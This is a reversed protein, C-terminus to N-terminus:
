TDAAAYRLDKAARRVWGKGAAPWNALRTWFELREAVFLMIFDTVSMAKLAAITIPGVHGDDAVGVATQMKRIATEIGSNVAFDFVQFAIAPEFQDMKGRTWFDRTYIERAEERTLTQINLNPYSRKSIGWKTEGGPDAPDNVYGGEHEMLRDFVQDFATM